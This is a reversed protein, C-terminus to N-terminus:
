LSGHSKDYKKRKKLLSYVLFYCFTYLTKETNRIPIFNFYGYRFWLNTPSGFAIVPIDLRRFEKAIEATKLDLNFIVLLDPQKFVVKATSFKSSIFANRVFKKNGVLGKVWISKPLFLHNSEKTLRLTEASLSSPFGLFWIKKRAYHFSYITKLAHKLYLEVQNDLVNVSNLYSNYKLLYLKVLSYKKKLKVTILKM